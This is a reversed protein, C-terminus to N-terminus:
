IFWQLLYLTQVQVTKWLKLILEQNQNVEQLTV